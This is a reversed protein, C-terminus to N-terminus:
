KAHRPPVAVRPVPHARAGRRARVPRRRLRRHQARRLLRVRAFLAELSGFRSPKINVMKPPFPLAEIDDVSHIPADWTVRDRHPRLVEDTEPTLEPDEIWAYPFADTVRRYLDPDADQDVITGKYLGKFDVSDVAGTEVLEAILSDDWESTPDLKFRLSPYQDLRKRVPEISPPKGLRLSVVFTLPRAERGLHEALSVGAQRLALDLAASEFAWRRYLISPEHRAPEPFLELGGM